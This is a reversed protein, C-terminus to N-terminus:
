IDTGHIGKERARVLLAANRERKERKGNKRRRSLKLCEVSSTQRLRAVTGERKKRLTITSPPEVKEWKVVDRM